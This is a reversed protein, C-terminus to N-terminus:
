KVGTKNSHFEIVILITSSKVQHYSKNVHITTIRNSGLISSKYESIALNKLNSSLIISSEDLILYPM